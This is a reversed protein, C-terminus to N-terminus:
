YFSFESNLGTSSHKLFEGQLRPTPYIGGWVNTVAAHCFCYRMDLNKDFCRVLFAREMRIHLPFLTQTRNENASYTM